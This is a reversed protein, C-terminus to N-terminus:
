YPYGGHTSKWNTAASAAAAAPCAYRLRLRWIRGQSHGRLRDEVGIPSRTSPNAGPLIGPRKASDICFLGAIVM